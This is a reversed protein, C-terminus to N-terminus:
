QSKAAEMRKLLQAALAQADAIQTPPMRAALDDRYEMARALLESEQAAFVAAVNVWAHAKVYDQPVGEGNHYMVGLNLQAVAHGQNAAKRYWRVAEGHDQPVGRGLQYMVGLKVQAAAVGQEGATRLQENDQDEALGPRCGALVALAVLLVPLRQTRTNRNNMSGM